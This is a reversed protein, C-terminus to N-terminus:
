TGRARLLEPTEEYEIEYAATMTVCDILDDIMADPDDVCANDVTEARVIKCVGMVLLLILVMSRQAVSIVSPGADGRSLFM